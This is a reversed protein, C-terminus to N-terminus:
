CKPPKEAYIIPSVVTEAPPYSAVTRYNRRVEQKVPQFNVVM